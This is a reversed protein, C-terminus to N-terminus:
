LGGGSTNFVMRSWITAFGSCEGARQLVWLELFDIAIEGIFAAHRAHRLAIVFVVRM